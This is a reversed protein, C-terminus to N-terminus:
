IKITALHSLIDHCSLATMDQQYCSISYWSLIFCDYGAPLLIHYFIMVPYLLWIRSTALYSLIDHCSLATMHQQYCSIISYSRIFCDYRLPLLIHYLTMVPYLLWISSTALYSIIDHCSLATMDQQYCSMDQQYCSMISFSLNFCEYGAPLLTHSIVDHVCSVEDDVSTISTWRGGGGGWNIM